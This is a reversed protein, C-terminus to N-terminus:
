INKCLKCYKDIFNAILGCRVLSGGVRPNIEFIIPKDDVIKYDICLMGSYSSAKIINNFVDLIKDDLIVLKSYLPKTQTGHIFTQSTFKHKVTLHLEIKGNQALIHTAYENEGEIIECIVYKKLNVDPIDSENKIIYSSRGYDLSKHKLICPIKITDYYKPMYQEFNFYHMFISFLAKDDFCLFVYLNPVLFKINKKYFKDRNKILYQTHPCSYPFIININNSHCYEIIENHENSNVNITMQLYDRPNENMITHFFFEDRPIGIKHRKSM